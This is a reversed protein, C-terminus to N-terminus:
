DVSLMTPIGMVQFFFINWFLLNTVNQFLDRKWRGYDV